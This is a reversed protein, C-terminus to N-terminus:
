YGVGQAVQLYTEGSATLSNYTLGLASAALDDYTAGAGGIGNGGTGGESTDPPAYSLRFPIDWTRTTVGQDVGIVSQTVDFCTIYDTGYSRHAWGYNASVPLSLVLVRNPDFLDELADIDDLTYSTLTLGSAYNKRTQSVTVPRRDDIIDFIGAANAYVRPALGSFVVTDVDVCEDFFSSMVIRVNRTPDVPDRLWGDDDSDLVVTNSTAEVV